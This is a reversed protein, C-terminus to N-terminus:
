KDSKSSANQLEWLLLHKLFSHYAAFKAIAFGPLGDLFGGKFLYSRLFALMGATHINLKSTTKGDKYMQRAALPAYREGIMRHHHAASEVSFHLIDATLKEIRAGDKMQISEHVEVDKWAGLRRNFLRLQLDPYWGSHRIARNMYYSLRPIEYGDALNEEPLAKLKRFIEALESSVEEDADLSFIFDNAAKEIAFQKQKAFGLWKQVFVRAGLTESIERTMDTSESDVLIIEDAFALSNIARAINNEENHSIITASIKV